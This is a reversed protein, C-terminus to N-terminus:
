MEHAIPSVTCPPDSIPDQVAQLPGSAPDAPQHHQVPEASTTAEVSTAPSDIWQAPTFDIHELLSSTWSSIDDLGAWDDATLEPPPACQPDGHAHQITGDPQVTVTETPSEPVYVEVDGIVRHKPDTWAAGHPAIQPNIVAQIVQTINEPTLGNHTADKRAKKYPIQLQEIALPSCPIAVVVGASRKLNKKSLRNPGPTRQIVNAEIPVFSGSTLVNTQDALIPRQINLRIDPLNGRPGQQQKVSEGGTGCNATFYDCGLSGM